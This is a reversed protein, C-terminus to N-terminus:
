AAKSPKNKQVSKVIFSVLMVVFHVFLGIGTIILAILPWQDAPNNAVAFQSYMRDGPESGAPGFSEQFFTFGAYRMPENMKIELATDDKGDEFRTVRSEYNRAMGTGPHKEFIFKDLEVEFPVTWSKKAILLGYTQGGIEFTFPMPDEEPDFRYSGAWLIAEIPDGGDKPRIEVYCGPLNMEAEKATKRSYLKFGDVERASVKSAAPDSTPITTSNKSFDSVMIEFPFDEAGIVRDEDPGISQFAESPYVYLKEAKGSDNLSMIELQWNRYSEVRNTKMGPYLAMYGDTSFAWTVYGGALLLLMGIHSILLGVGKLRKKVKVIAGLVMNIFLIAMLLLGGPLVIPITGFIRETFFMSHFYKVKAAHLGNEVQGLTGFLTVITMLILVVTALKFSTFFRYLPLLPNSSSPSTSPSAM